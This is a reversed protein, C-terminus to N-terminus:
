FPADVTFIPLLVLLAWILWSFYLPSFLHWYSASSYTLSLQLYPQYVYWPRFLCPTPELDHIHATRTSPSIWISFVSLFPWLPPFTFTSLPAAQVKGQSRMSPDIRKQHGELALVRDRWRQISLKSNQVLFMTPSESYTNFPNFASHIFM